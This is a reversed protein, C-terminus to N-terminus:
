HHVGNHDNLAKFITKYDQGPTHRINLLQTRCLNGQFKHSAKQNSMYHSNYFMICVPTHM